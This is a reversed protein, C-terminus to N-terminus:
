ILLDGLRVLVIAADPAPDTAACASAHFGVFYAERDSRTTKRGTPSSVVPCEAVRRKAQHVLDGRTSLREFPVIVCKSLKASDGCSDSDAVGSADVSAWEAEFVQDLFNGNIIKVIYECKENIQKNGM